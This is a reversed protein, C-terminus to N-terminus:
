LLNSAAELLADADTASCVGLKVRASTVGDAIAFWVSSKALNLAAKTTATATASPALVIMKGTLTGALSEAEMLMVPSSLTSPLACVGTGPVVPLVLEVVDYKSPQYVVDVSTWADTGVFAIDGNPTIAIQGTTPTANAATITLEGATVGGVRGYARYITSAKADEPLAICQVTALNYANVAPAKKRLTTPLARLMDGFKLTRLADALGGPLAANLVSKLSTSLSTLAM